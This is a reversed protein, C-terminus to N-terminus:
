REKAEYNIQAEKLERKLQLLKSEYDKLQKYDKNQDFFKWTSEDLDLGEYQYIDFYPNM